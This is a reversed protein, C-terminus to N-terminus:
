EGTSHCTSLMESLPEVRGARYQREEYQWPTANHGVKVKGIMRIKSNTNLIAQWMWADGNGNNHSANLTSWQQDHYQSFRNYQEGSRTHHIVWIKSTKELDNIRVTITIKYVPDDDRKVKGIYKYPVCDLSLFLQDTGTTIEPAASASLPLLLLAMAALTTKM